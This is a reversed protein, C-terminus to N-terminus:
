NFRYKRSRLEFADRGGEMTDTIASRVETTEIAGDIAVRIRALEPASEAEDPVGPALSIIKDADGNVVLNPNHTSFILQRKLKTTQLLEAISMIVRNDLDDEPQDIILTGAEQNLLLNLLAAAQQGPSAKEFSIFTKQDRYQFAIHDNAFASLASAIISDSLRQYIGMTMAETLGEGFLASIGDYVPSKRDFAVVPSKIKKEYLDLLARIFEGWSSAQDPHHLATAIDSMKAEVDRMRLNDCISLLIRVYSSPAAETAISARLSQASMQEVKAAAQALIARREELKKQLQEMREELTQRARIKGALQDELQRKTVTASHLEQSLRSSEEVLNKLETQQEIAERHRQDFDDKATQFNSQITENAEILHDLERVVDALSVEINRSADITLQELMSLESIQSCETEQFASTISPIKNGLAVVEARDTRLKEDINDFLAETARYTPADDLVKQAELPLGGAALKESVRKLRVRIDTVVQDSQHLQAELHWVGFLDRAADELERQAAAIEGDTRRRQDLEEAAAIGTIQDDATGKDAVITSLQKQYFARARFRQQASVISLEQAVAGAQLVSIQDPSALTRKWAEAVGDREITVEVFGDDGLTDKVLDRERDRGPGDSLEGDIASRGLGFRLYELLTSKGSGRGGILANFGDNFSIEFDKGTLSSTVRMTLVRQTPQPPTDYCVRAQDALVAQRISEATPEGLRIWCTHTGLRDFTASRSDGTPLLGRRRLGWAQEKGWVKRLTGNDLKSFDKDTYVGDFDGDKFRPAFGQRLMSKHAGENSAHPLVISVNSLGSDGLVSEIFQGIDKGCVSAQPNHTADPDPAAISQLHGGFLRHWVASHSDADFLVLCQVADSCTVETGPFLWLEDKCGARAIAAQIYPILCFDHHDTVGIATLHRSRCEQVFLDAWAERAAEAEASGGPLDPGGKWQPDRPTHIQFDCKKWLAGPHMGLKYQM